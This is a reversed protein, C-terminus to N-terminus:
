IAWSQPNAPEAANAREKLCRKPAVSAIHLDRWNVLTLMAFLLWLCANMDNSYPLGFYEDFGQELPLYPRRDGLHWKGFIGCSYGRRKLVDAITDEEPDLGAEANPGLAGLIGVRNSYCGTLLAARSASCVAQAVQFDTFKMGEAALRDINPTLGARAGFCSPDAYGMDDMFFVVFNPPRTASSRTAARTLGSLALAVGSLGACTLFERRNQRRMRM